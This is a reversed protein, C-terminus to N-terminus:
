RNGRNYGRYIVAIGRPFEGRKGVSFLNVGSDIRRDTGRPVFGHLWRRTM